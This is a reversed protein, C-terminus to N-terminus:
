VFHSFRNSKCNETESTEFADFGFQCSTGGTPTLINIIKGDFELAKCFICTLLGKILNNQCENLGEEGQHVRDVM